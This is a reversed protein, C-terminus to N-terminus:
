TAPPDGRGGTARYSAFDGTWIRPLDDIPRNFLYMWARTTELNALTVEVTSRIFLSEEPLHPLCHEYRDLHSILMESTESLLTYVEGCIVDGDEMADVAAPYWGADYLRGPVRATGLFRAHQVLLDHEAGGISSLLSGYVFLHLPPRTV